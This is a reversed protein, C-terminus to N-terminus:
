GNDDLHLIKGNMPSVAMWRHSEVAYIVQAETLKFAHAAGSVEAGEGNCIAWTQIANGMWSTSIPLDDPRFTADNKGYPDTEDLDDRLIVPSM